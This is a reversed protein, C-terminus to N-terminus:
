GAEIDAVVLRAIEDRDTIGQSALSVVKKAAVEGLPDDSNKINLITRLDDFAAAM